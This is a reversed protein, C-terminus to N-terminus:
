YTETYEIVTRNGFDTANGSFRSYDPELISGTPGSEM